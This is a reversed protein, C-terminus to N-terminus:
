SLVLRSRLPLAASGPDKRVADTLFIVPSDAGLVREWGSRRQTFRSTGEPMKQQRSEFALADAVVVLNRCRQRAARLFAGQLDAEPTASFNVALIVGAESPSWQALFLEEEGLEVRPLFDVHTQGGWLHLALTGLADGTRIEPTYHLPIVQICAVNGRALNHLAGAKAQAWSEFDPRRRHRKRLALLLLITRPIGIFLAATAAWLHIFPAANATAAGAASGNASLRLSALEPAPPVSIGTVASAPGLVTGLLRHLGHEDLFTSEWAARYEKRLGQAYMGAVIGGALLLAASHFLVRGRAVQWPRCLAAWKSCHSIVARILVERQRPDTMKAMAGEFLFRLRPSLQPLSRAPFQEGPLKSKRFSGAFVASCVILNWLVLGLLPFSLIDITRDPGLENSFWGLLAAGALLAPGTWRLWAPVMSLSRDITLRVPEPLDSILLDARHDLFALARGTDPEGAAAAKTARERLEFPVVEGIADCEELSDLFHIRCTRVFDSNM